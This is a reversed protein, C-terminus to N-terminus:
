QSSIWLITLGTSVGDRYAAHGATLLQFTTMDTRAATVFTRTGSASYNYILSTAATRLSSFNLTMLFGVVRELTLQEAFTFATAAVVKAVRDAARMAVRGNSIVVRAFEVTSFHEVTALMIASFGAVYSKALFARNYVTLGLGAGTTACEELRGDEATHERWLAFIEAALLQGTPMFALINAM